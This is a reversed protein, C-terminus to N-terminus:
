KTGSISENNDRFPNLKGLFTNMNSGFISDNQLSFPYMKSISTLNKIAVKFEESNQM